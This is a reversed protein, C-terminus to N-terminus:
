KRVRGRSPCDISLITVRCFELALEWRNADADITDQYRMEFVDRAKKRLHIYEDMKEELEEIDEIWEDDITDPLGRLYRVSGEHTALSSSLCARRRTTIFM